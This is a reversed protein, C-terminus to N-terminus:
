EFGLAQFLPQGNLSKMSIVSYTYPSPIKVNIRQEVQEPIARDSVLVVGDQVTLGGAKLSEGHPNFGIGVKSGDITFLKQTKTKSAFLRDLQEEVTLSPSSDLSCFFSKLWTWFSVLAGTITEIMNSFCNQSSSSSAISISISDSQQTYSASVPGAKQFSPTESQSVQPNFGTRPISM